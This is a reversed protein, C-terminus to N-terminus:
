WRPSPRTDPGFTYRIDWMRDVAFANVCLAAIFLAVLRNM